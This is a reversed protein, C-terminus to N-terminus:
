APPRDPNNVCMAAVFLTENHVRIFLQRRENFQFRRNAAISM